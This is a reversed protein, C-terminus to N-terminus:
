VARNLDQATLDARLRRHVGVVMAVHTLRRVIGEGGGHVDGGRHGRPVHRQRPEAAQMGCKFGFDRLELADDFDAAGVRHVGRGERERLLERAVRMLHGHADRADLRGQGADILQGLAARRHARAQVRGLAPSLRHGGVHGVDGAQGEHRCGVLEFSQGGM